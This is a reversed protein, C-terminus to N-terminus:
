GIEPLKHGSLMRYQDIAFSDTMRSIFTVIKLINLYHDSPIPQYQEPLTGILSKAFKKGESWQQLASLYIDLLGHIASRGAYELAVIKSKGFIASKSQKVRGFEEKQKIYDTLEDDFLGSMIAEYNEKFVELCQFTLASIAKARFAGIREDANGIAMIDRVDCPDGTISNAFPKLLDLVEDEEILGLKHADELDIIQYCINDAAEMIFALPHRSFHYPTSDTLQLLGLKNAVSLFCEEEEKFFGTKKKSVRESLATGLENPKVKISGKTYKCFAGLTAYTLKLGGKNKSPHDNTLIRFGEANGEFTLLDAKQRKNLVKFEPFECLEFYDRFANEGSHGFPPNGIDHALCAAYVVDAFDASTLPTNTKPDMIEGEKELVFKGVLRGLSRGVSAVEFSHTLRTHVFDSKPIPFVQTKNQLRRFASAFVIRDADREFDSRADAQLNPAETGFRESTMLSSWNMKNM